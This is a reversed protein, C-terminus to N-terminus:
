RRGPRQFTFVTHLLEVGPALWGNRQQRGFALAQPGPHRKESRCVVSGPFAWIRAQERTSAEIFPATYSLAHTKGRLSGGVHGPSVYPRSVSRHIWPEELILGCGNDM